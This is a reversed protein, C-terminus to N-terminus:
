WESFDLGYYEEWLALDAGDVDGDGDFDGDEFTRDTADPAYHIQWWLFGGGDVVNTLDYDGPLIVFTFMFMDGADGDGTPFNTRSPYSLGMPYAWNGDLMNGAADRIYNSMMYNMAIALKDAPFVTNFRWSATFTDPDFGLFQYNSPDATYTTHTHAGYLFLDTAGVDVWESFVIAVTDAGGVPVTRFEHIGQSFADAFSYDDHTSNSGSIV